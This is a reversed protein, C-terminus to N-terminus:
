RDGGNGPASSDFEEDLDARAIRELGGVLHRYPTGHGQFRDNMDPYLEIFRELFERRLPDDRSDVTLGLFEAMAPVFDPLEGDLRFGYHEYIAALEVMYQNRDADAIDHCTSPEDFAYQGLYLPCAPELELTDVYQITDVTEFEELFAALAHGARRDIRRAVAPTIESLTRTFAEEDLAEPYVFGWSITDYTRALLDLHSEPSATDSEPTEPIAM